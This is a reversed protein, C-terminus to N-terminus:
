AAFPFSDHVVFRGDDADQRFLALSEIRLNLPVTQLLTRLVPELRHRDANDLAGTLTMHFQFDDLVFPYGWTDLNEVQRQILRDPHRRERDAATLPERFPDFHRVCDDALAQLGPPPDVAVLALFHGVPALTLDLHVSPRGRAFRDMEAVLEDMTRDEALRFPAKLTAHFGYRRPEASWALSLPDAFIPDDPFPVDLGTVADYGLISSGLKWLESETPPIAYIAFRPM